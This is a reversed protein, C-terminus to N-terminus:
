HIKGIVQFSVECTIPLISNDLSIKKCCISLPYVIKNNNKPNKIIFVGEYLINQISKDEENGLDGRDKRGEM